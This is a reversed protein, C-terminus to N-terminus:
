FILSQVVTNLKECTEEFEREANSNKIIGAGARIYTESENQFVTRLVLAIDIGCTQNFVFIGGSYLHRPSNEYKDIALLSEKKPIGSATVAPFLSYI